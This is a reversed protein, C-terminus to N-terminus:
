GERVFGGLISGASRYIAKALPEMRRDHIRNAISQLLECSENDVGEFEGARDLAHDHARCFKRWRDCMVILEGDATADVPGAPAISIAQAAVATAAISTM